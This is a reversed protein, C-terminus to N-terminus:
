DQSSDPLPISDVSALHFHAKPNDGLRKRAVALAGASPDICHLLGVREVVKAAWRGSGCGLDFGEADPGLEDFPFIGFYGDFLRQLERESLGTQDFASWEDGFGEVTREDINRSPETVDDVEFM